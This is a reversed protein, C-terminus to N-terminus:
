DEAVKNVNSWHNKFQIRLNNQTRLIILGNM